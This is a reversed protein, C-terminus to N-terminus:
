EKSILFTLNLVTYLRCPPFLFCLLDWIYCGNKTSEFTKCDRGTYPCYTNSSSVQEKYCTFSPLHSAPVRIGWEGHSMWRGLGNPFLQPLSCTVAALSISWFVTLGLFLVPFSFQLHWPSDKGLLLYLQNPTHTHTHTQTKFTVNSLDKREFSLSLYTEM